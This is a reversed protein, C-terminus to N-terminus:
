QHHLLMGTNDRASSSKSSSAPSSPCPGKVLLSIVICHVHVYAAMCTCHSTTISCHNNNEVAVWAVPAQDNLRQSPTVIAKLFYVGTSEM